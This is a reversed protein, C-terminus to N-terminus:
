EDAADSTYLLCPPFLEPALAEAIILPDLAHVENRTEDYLVAGTEITAHSQVREAAARLGQPSTDDLTEVEVRGVRPRAEGRLLLCADLTQDFLAGPRVVLTLKADPDLPSVM